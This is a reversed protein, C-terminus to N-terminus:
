PFPYKIQRVQLTVSLSGKNYAYESMDQNSYCYNASVFQKTIAVSHLKLLMGCGGFLGIFYLFLYEYSIDVHIYM